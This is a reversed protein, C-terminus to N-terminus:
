NELDEKFRSKYKNSLCLIQIALIAESQDIMLGDSLDIAIKEVKDYNILYLENAKKLNQNVTSCDEGYDFYNEVFAQELSLKEENTM